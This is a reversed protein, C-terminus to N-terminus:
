FTIMWMGILFLEVFLSKLIIRIEDHRLIKMDMHPYSRFVLSKIDRNNMICIDYIAFLYLISLGFM